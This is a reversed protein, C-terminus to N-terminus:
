QEILLSWPPVVLTLSSNLEDCSQASVRVAGSYVDALDEGSIVPSIRLRTMHWDIVNGLFTQWDGRREM